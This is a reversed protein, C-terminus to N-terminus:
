ILLNLVEKQFKMLQQLSQKMVSKSKLLIDRLVPKYEHPVPFEFSVKDALDNRIGITILRERKQAVGFDWANM